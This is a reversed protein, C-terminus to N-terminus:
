ILAGVQTKVSLRKLYFTDLMAVSTGVNDALLKLNLEPNAMIKMMLGTSRLAKLNRPKGLRDKRLGAADLLERFGDRHHEKFLLDDPKLDGRAVLRRYSTVAGSWAISDRIGTKGNIRMELYYPIKLRRRTQQAATPERVVCDSVRLSRLEDVRACSHVMMLMFDYLEERQAKTRTSIGPVAIREKAAQQLRKWEDPELWPRPNAEIKGAPPFVPISGILKEYAAWKLVQRITVLDKHVTHNSIRTGSATVQAKRWKIFDNLTKSSVDAVDMATFYERVKNWKVRYDKQKQEKEVSSLFGEAVDWMAGSSPDGTNSRHLARWWSRAVREAKRYDTEHTNSFHYKGNLLARAKYHKAGKREELYLGKELKFSQTKTFGM